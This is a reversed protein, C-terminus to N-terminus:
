DDRGVPDADAEYACAVFMIIIVHVQPAITRALLTTQNIRIVPFWINYLVYM